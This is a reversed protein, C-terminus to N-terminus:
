FFNLIKISLHRQFYHVRKNKASLENVRHQLSNALIKVASGSGFCYVFKVRFTLHVWFLRLLKFTTVSFNEILSFRFDPQLRLRQLYHHVLSQPLSALRLVCFSQKVVLRLSRRVIRYSIQVANIQTRFSCVSASLSLSGTPLAM